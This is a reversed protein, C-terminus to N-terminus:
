RPVEKSGNKTSSHAASERHTADADQTGIDHWILTRHDFGTPLSRKIIEFHPSVDLDRPARRFCVPVPPTSVPRQPQRHARDCLFALARFPATRRHQPCTHVTHALYRALWNGLLPLPRNMAIIGYHARRGTLRYFPPSGAGLPISPMCHYPGMPKRLRKTPYWWTYRITPM